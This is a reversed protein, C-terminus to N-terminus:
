LETTLGEKFFRIIVEPLSYKSESMTTVDRLVFKVDSQPATSVVVIFPHHHQAVNHLIDLNIQLRKVSFNIKLLLLRTLQLASGNSQNM